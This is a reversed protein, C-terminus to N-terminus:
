HTEYDGEFSGDQIAVGSDILHRAVFVDITAVDGTRYNRWDKLFRIRM